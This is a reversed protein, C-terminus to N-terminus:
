LTYTYHHVVRNEDLDFNSARGGQAYVCHLKAGAVKVAEKAGTTENTVFRNWGGSTIKEAQCLQGMMQDLPVLAGYPSRAGRNQQCFDISALAKRAGAPTWVYAHTLYGGYGHGLYAVDANANKKDSLFAAIRARTEKAADTDALKQGTKEKEAIAAFDSGETSGHKPKQMSAFDKDKGFGKNVLEEKILDGLRIDDEFIVMRTENQQRAVYELAVRHSFMAGRQYRDFRFEKTSRNWRGKENHDGCVDKYEQM